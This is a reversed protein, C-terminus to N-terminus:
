NHITFPSNALEQGTETYIVRVNYTANAPLPLPVSFGSHLGKAGHAAAVDHRQREATIQREDNGDVILTLHAPKNENHCFAWGTLNHGDWAEIRGIIIEPLKSLVYIVGNRHGQHYQEFKKTGATAAFNHLFALTKKPLFWLKALLQLKRPHDQLLSAVINPTVNIKNIIKFGNRLLHADTNHMAEIRYTEYFIFLGSANLSRYIEHLQSNHHPVGTEVSLVLDLTENAFPMNESNTKFTANKFKRHKWKCYQVAVQSADLGTLRSDKHLHETLLYLSGHGQGCGIECVNLPKSQTVGGAKLLEVYFQLQNANDGKISSPSYGYNNLLIKGYRLEYLCYISYIFNYRLNNKM